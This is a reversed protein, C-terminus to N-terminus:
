SPSKRTMKALEGRWLPNQSRPYKDAAYTEACSKFRQASHAIAQYGFPEASPRGAQIDSDISATLQDFDRWDCCLMKAHLLKGKVFNFDPAVELLKEYCEVAEAFRNLKHFVNARGNWAQAMDPALALAKDYSALADDYGM